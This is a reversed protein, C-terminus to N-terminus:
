KKFIPDNQNVRTHFIVSRVLLQKLTDGNALTQAEHKKNFKKVKKQLKM